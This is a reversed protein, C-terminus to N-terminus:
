SQIDPRKLRKGKPSLKLLPLDVVRERAIPKVCPKGGDLGAGLGDCVDNKLLIM